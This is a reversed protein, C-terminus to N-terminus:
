GPNAIDKRILDKIYASMSKEQALRKLIDEDHDLNLPVRITKIHKRQYDIDYSKKDYAAQLDRVGDRLLMDKITRYSDEDYWEGNYQEESGDAYRVILRGSDLSFTVKTGDMYGTFKM